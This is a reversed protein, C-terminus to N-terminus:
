RYILVPIKSHTAVKTAQNGLMLGSLGTRGHSAM